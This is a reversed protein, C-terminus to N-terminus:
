GPPRVAQLRGRLSASPAGSAPRGGISSGFATGGPAANRTHVPRGSRRPRGGCGVSGTTEGSRQVLTSNALVTEQDNNSLWVSGAGFSICDGGPGAFQEVVKNTKPDIRSFPTGPMTIWVSGGGTAVCGGTGPIEVPITAVVTASVPDIRSVDGKDQGLVWVADKDAAEFRPQTVVDITRVVKGRQDIQLVTNSAPVTAWLSDAAAVLAVPNGGLTYTASVQNTKARTSGCWRGRTTRSCGSPASHPSSSAKGTARSEASRSPPLSRM